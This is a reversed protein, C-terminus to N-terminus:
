IGKNQVPSLELGDLNYFPVRNKLLSLLWIDGGNDLLPLVTKQINTGIKINTKIKKIIPKSDILFEKNGLDSTKYIDNIKRGVNDEYTEILIFTKEDIWETNVNSGEKIALSLSKGEPKYIILENSNYIIISDGSPSISSLNYFSDLSFSGKENLGTDLIVVKTNNPIDFNVAIWNEDDSWFTSKINTDFQTNIASDNNTNMLLIESNNIELYKNGLPSIIPKNLSKKIEKIEKNSTDLYYWKNNNKLIVKGNESWNIYNISIEKIPINSAAYYIGKDTSYILQDQLWSYGTAPKNINGITNFFYASTSSLEGAPTKKLKATPTPLKQINGQPAVEDPKPIPKQKREDLLSNIVFLGIIISGIIIVGIVKQNTKLFNKLM